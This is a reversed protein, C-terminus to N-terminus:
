IYINFLSFLFRANDHEIVIIVCEIIIRNLVVITMGGQEGNGIAISQIPMGGFGYAFSLLRAFVCM